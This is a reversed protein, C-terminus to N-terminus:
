IYISMCLYRFVAPFAFSFRLKKSKGGGTGASKALRRVTSEVSVAHLVFEISPTM